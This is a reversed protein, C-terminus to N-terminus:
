MLLMERSSMYLYLFHYKNIAESSFERWHRM